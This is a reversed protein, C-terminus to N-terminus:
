SEWAEDPTFEIEFDTDRRWKMADVRRITGDPDLGEGLAYPKVWYELVRRRVSNMSPVSDCCRIHPPDGYHLRRTMIDHRLLGVPGHRPQPLFVSSLGMSRSFAVDFPHGCRQCSIRALVAERAYINAMLNPQFRVYRPVANEDFWIPDEDIRVLIDFYHTHM